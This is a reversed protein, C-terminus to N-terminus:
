ITLLLLLYIGMLLYFGLLYERKIGIKVLEEEFIMILFVIILFLIM